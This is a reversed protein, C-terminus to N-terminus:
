DGPWAQETRLQGVGLTPCWDFRLRPAVSRMTSVIQQWYGVFDAPSTGAAWKSWGGNFEWGLRIVTKGLRYRVLERALRRFHENYGGSAGATMTDAGSTPLMPVSLVLRYPSAKWKRLQWGPTEIRQWSDGAAFDLAWG